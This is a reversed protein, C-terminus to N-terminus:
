IRWSDPVDWFPRRAENDADRRSLGLDDLAATDLRSLQSRQRRLAVFASLRASLLVPRSLRLADRSLTQTRSM